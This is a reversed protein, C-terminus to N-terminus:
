RKSDQIEQAHKYEGFSKMADTDNPIQLRSGRVLSSLEWEKLLALFGNILREETKSLQQNQDYVINGIQLMGSMRKWGKVFKKYTNSGDYNTWSSQSIFM